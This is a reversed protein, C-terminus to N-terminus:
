DCAQYRISKMLVNPSFFLQYNLSYASYNVACHLAAMWRTKLAAERDGLSEMAGVVSGNVRSVEMGRGSDHVSAHGGKNGVIGGAVAVM